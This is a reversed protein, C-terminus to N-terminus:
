STLSILFSLISLSLCPLSIYIYSSYVNQHPSLKGNLDTNTANDAMLGPHALTGGGLAGGFDTEWEEEEEEEGEEDETSLSSLSSSAMAALHKLNANLRAQYILYESSNIGM